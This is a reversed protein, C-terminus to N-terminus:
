EDFVHRTGCTHRPPPCFPELVQRMGGTHRPPLSCPEVAFWGCFLYEPSAFGRRYPPYCLRLYFASAM